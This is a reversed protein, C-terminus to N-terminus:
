AFDKRANQPSFDSKRRNWSPEIRSATTHGQLLTASLLIMQSFIILCRRWLHPRVAINFDCCNCLGAPLWTNGKIARKLVRRLEGHRAYQCIEVNFTKTMYFTDCGAQCLRRLSDTSDIKASSDKNQREHLSSQVLPLVPVFNTSRDYWANRVFPKMPNERFNELVCEWPRM